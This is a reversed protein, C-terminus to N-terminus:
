PSPPTSSGRAGRAKALASEIADRFIPYPAVGELKQDGVFFTPTSRVGASAARERDAAILAFTSHKSMCQRWEPMSVGSRTAISDFLADASTMASWKDQAAFLADHLQWFKGQVAGCMAAEAAPMANKHQPLPYNMYALRVKGTRVYEQTLKGFTSDHWQKCFPCQFDSAM